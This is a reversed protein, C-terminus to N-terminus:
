EVLPDGPHGLLPNSPPPALSPLPGNASLHEHKVQSWALLWNVATARRTRRPFLEDIRYGEFGLCKKLSQKYEKPISRTLHVSARRNAIIEPAQPFQQSWYEPTTEGAFWASSDDALVLYGLRGWVLKCVFIDSIHDSLIEFLLAKSLPWHTRM